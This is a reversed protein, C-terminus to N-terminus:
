SRAGLRAAVYAGVMARGEELVEPDGGPLSRFAERLLGDGAIVVMRAAAPTTSADAEPWHTALIRAVSAAIAVRTPGPQTASASPACGASGCPSSGRSPAFAPPWRARAGRRGPDPLPDREDTEAVAAM